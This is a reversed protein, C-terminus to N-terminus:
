SGATLEDFVEAAVSDWGNLSTQLQEATRAGVIPATVGPQRAAWAAALAAPAVGAGDALHRLRGVIEFARDDVFSATMAARASGSVDEASAFRGSLLGSALVFYPFGHLGFEEIVPRYGTEFGTRDLLNYRAMVAVPRRAGIEDAVRIWERMREPSFTSVGIGRALGDDILADFARVSEELPVTPDDRHAYFLDIHDTHLIRLSEEAGRRINAASLGPTRTGGGVKTAIVLNDRQEPSRTALWSGLVGEASRDDDGPGEWDPATYVDATDILVPGSGADVLADLIRHSEVRDATWGFVNTGLGIRPDLACLQDSISM